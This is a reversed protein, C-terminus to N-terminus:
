KKPNEEELAQNFLNWLKGYEQSAPTVPKPIDNIRDMKIKGEKSMVIVRTGLYIAEQINHTIFIVTIKEQETLHLLEAQLNRRTMADLSAFPEDMLIMEPRLAFAKAIAVRQKMGGSLQHPYFKKFKGLDVIDLYKDSLRQLEEKDKIGKLKLPYQVNKEVTKWPFLQNFDQFVMMRDPGPRFVREGNVLIEGKQYKEFGGICRLFTTKGCGSPGLICLFEEKKVTLDVGNLINDAGKSDEYGKYLGKVEMLVDTKQTNQSNSM